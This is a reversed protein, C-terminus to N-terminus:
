PRVWPFGAAEPDQGAHTPLNPDAELVHLAAELFEIRELKRRLEDRLMLNEAAIEGPTRSRPLPGGGVRRCEASYRHEVEIGDESVTISTAGPPMHWRACGCSRISTPNAPGPTPPHVVQDPETTM